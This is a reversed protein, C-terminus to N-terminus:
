CGKAAALPSGTRKLSRFPSCIIVTLRNCERTAVWLTLRAAVLSINFRLILCGNSGFSTAENAFDNESPYKETSPSLWQSRVEQLYRPLAAFPFALVFGCPPKRFVRQHLQNHHEAPYNAQKLHM